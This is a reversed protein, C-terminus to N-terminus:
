VGSAFLAGDYLPATPVAETITVVGTSALKVIVPPSTLTVRPAVEPFVDVMVMVGAPPNVPLTAKVAVTVALGAPAVSEGVSLKPEVEGTPMVPAFAPVAVSVIEVVATVVFVKSEGFNM